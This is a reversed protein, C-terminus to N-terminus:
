WQGRGGESETWISAGGEEWALGRESYRIGEMEALHAPLLQPQVPDRGLLRPITVPLSDPLGGHYRIL